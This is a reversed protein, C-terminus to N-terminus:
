RCLKMYDTYGESIIHSLSIWIVRYYWWYRWWWWGWKTSMPALVRFCQSVTRLDAVKLHLASVQVRTKVVGCEQTGVCSSWSFHCMCQGHKWFLGPLNQSCQFHSSTSPIGMIMIEQLIKRLKNSIDVGRDGFPSDLHTKGSPVFFAQDWLGLLHQVRVPHWM